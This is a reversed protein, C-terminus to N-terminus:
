LEVGRGGLGQILVELFAVLLQLLLKVLDLGADIDFDGRADGRFFLRFTCNFTATECLRLGLGVVGGVFLRQPTDCRQLLRNILLLGRDNSQFLLVPQRSIKLNFDVTKLLFQM